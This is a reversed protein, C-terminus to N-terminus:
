LAISGTVRFLIKFSAAPIPVDKNLIKTRSRDQFHSGSRPQSFRMGSSNRRCLQRKKWRALRPSMRTRRFHRARHSHDSFGTEVAIEAGAVSSAPEEVKM